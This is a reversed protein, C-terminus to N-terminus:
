VEILDWQMSVGASSSMKHTYSVEIADASSWSTGLILCMSWCDISSPDQYAITDKRRNKLYMNILWKVENM